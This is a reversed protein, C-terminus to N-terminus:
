RLASFKFGKRRRMGALAALGIGLLALSEPEPITGGAAIVEGSAVERSIHGTSCDAAICEGEFSPFGLALAVIGGGNTLADVFDLNLTRKGANNNPVYNDVLQIGTADAGFPITDVESTDYSALATTILVNSFVGTDADFVFSGTVTSEDNFTVNSLTWQVPMANALTAASMLVLGLFMRTLAKKM